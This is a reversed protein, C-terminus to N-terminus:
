SETIPFVALMDYNINENYKGEEYFKFTIHFGNRQTDRDTHFTLVVIFDGRLTFTRGTEIGCLTSIPYSRLNEKVIIHLYDFSCFVIFQKKCKIYWSVFFTDRLITAFPFLFIGSM